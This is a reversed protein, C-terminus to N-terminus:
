ASLISSNDLRSLQCYFNEKTKNYIAYGILALTVTYIAKNTVTLNSVLIEVSAGVFGVIITILSTTKNLNDETKRSLIRTEKNKLMNKNPEVNASLISSNDTKLFLRSAM